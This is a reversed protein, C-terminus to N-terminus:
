LSYKRYVSFYITPTAPNSGAAGREWLPHAEVAGCGSTVLKIRKKSKEAKTRYQSTRDELAPASGSRWVGVSQLRGITDAQPVSACATLWLQPPNIALVCGDGPTLSEFEGLTPHIGRTGPQQSGQGRRRDRCIFTTRHLRVKKGNLFAQLYKSVQGAFAGTGM